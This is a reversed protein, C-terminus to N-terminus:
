LQSITKEILISQPTSHHKKFGSINGTSLVLAIAKAQFGKSIKEQLNPKDPLEEVKSHLNNWLLKKVDKVINSITSIGVRNFNHLNQFSYGSALYICFIFISSCTIKDFNYTQLICCLLRTRLTFRLMPYSLIM